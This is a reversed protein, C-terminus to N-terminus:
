KRKGRRGIRIKEAMTRSRESDILVAYSEKIHPLHALGLRKQVGAIKKDDPGEIEVFCGLEALRDLAVECGGFRWVQRKKEFSIVKEYGLALLLKEVSGSDKDRQKSTCGVTESQSAFRPPTGVFQPVKVELEIEQRKKFEDKERAGKYTLFIRENQGAGQRRLRLGRDTNKLIADKSDFYSDTQTQEEVFEAGLESLKEAIEELSDVKLKAEIEIRM